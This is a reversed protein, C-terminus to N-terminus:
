LDGEKWGHAQAWQRADAQNRAYVNALLPNKFFQLPINESFPQTTVDSRYCGFRRCNYPRVDYVTCVAKGDADVDLLPCPKGILITLSRNSHLDWRLRRTTAAEIAAREARTM